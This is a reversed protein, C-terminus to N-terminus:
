RPVEEAEILLRVRAAGGVETRARVRLSQGVAIERRCHFDLSDTQGPNHTASRRSWERRGDLEVTLAHWAAGTQGPARVVFRVDIDFVRVRSVSAPIDLTVIDAQAADCRWSEPAASM